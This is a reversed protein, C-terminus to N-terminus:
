KSQLVLENASSPSSSPSGPTGPSPNGRGESTPTVQFDLAAPAPQVRYARYGFAATMGLCILCFAWPLARWRSPGSGQSRDGLRLSRVRDSLSAGNEPAARNGQNPESM